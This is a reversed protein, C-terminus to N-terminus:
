ALDGVQGQYRNESLSTWSQYIPKRLGVARSHAVPAWLRVPATGMELGGMKRARRREEEKERAKNM